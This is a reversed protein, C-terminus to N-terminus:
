GRGPLRARIQEAWRELTADNPPSAEANGTLRGHLAEKARRLRSAATGAPVDLVEAMERMTLDEWFYLELAIQLDVPIRRLADLLAAQERHKAAMASPSPDLDCVSTALPAFTAGDRYRERYHRLLVNRAVGLVYSRFSARAQFGAQTEICTVFTRQVLDEIGESVKNRFFNCVPLFHREFLADGARRDGDRWAALLELDDDAPAM